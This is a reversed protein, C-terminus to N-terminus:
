SCATCAGVAERDDDGIGLCRHRVDVLVVEDPGAGVVKEGDGAFVAADDEPVGLHGVLVEDADGVLRGFGDLRVGLPDRFEFGL